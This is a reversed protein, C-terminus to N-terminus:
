KSGGPIRVGLSSRRSFRRNFFQRARRQRSEGLLSRSRLRRRRLSREASFTWETFTSRSFFCLFASPKDKLTTSEEEKEWHVNFVKFFKHTAIKWQAVWHSFSLFHEDESEGGKIHILRLFAKSNKVINLSSVCYIIREGKM